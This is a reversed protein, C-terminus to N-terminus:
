FNIPAPVGTGRALVEFVGHVTVDPHESSPTGGVYCFHFRPTPNGVAISRIERGYTHNSPLGWERHVGIQQAGDLYLRPFGSMYTQPASDLGTVSAMVRRGLGASLHVDFTASLLTVSEFLMIRHQLAPNNCLNVTKLPTRGSLNFWFPIVFVSPAPGALVMQTSPQAPQIEVPAEDVLPSVLASMNCHVHHLASRRKGLWCYGEFLLDFTNSDSSITYNIRASTIEFFVFPLVFPLLQM